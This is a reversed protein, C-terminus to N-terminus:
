DSLSGRNGDFYAKIGKAIANSIIEATGAKVLYNVDQPNTLFGLELLVATQKAYVFGYIPRTFRKVGLDPISM